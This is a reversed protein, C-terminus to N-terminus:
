CRACGFDFYSQCGRISCTGASGTSWPSSCNGPPSAGLTPLCLGDKLLFGGGCAQCTGKSTYQSCGVINQICQGGFLAYQSACNICTGTSSKSLCGVVKWDQCKGSVLSLGNACQTCSGTVGDYSICCGSYDSPPSYVCINGM